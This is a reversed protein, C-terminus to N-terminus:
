DSQGGSIMRACAGTHVDGCWKCGEERQQHSLAAALDDRARMAASWCCWMDYDRTAGLKRLAMECAQGVTLGDLRYDPWDAARHNAIHNVGIQTTELAKRLADREAVLADREAVVAAHTAAQRRRINKLFEASESM